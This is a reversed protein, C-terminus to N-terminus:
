FHPIVFNNLMKHIWAFYCIFLIDCFYLFLCFVCFVVRLCIFCFCFVIFMLRLWYGKSRACDAWMKRGKKIPLLLGFWGLNFSKTQSYHSAQLEMYDIWRHIINKHTNHVFFYLICCVLHLLYQSSPNSGLKIHEATSCLWFFYWLSEWKEWEKWREINHMICM